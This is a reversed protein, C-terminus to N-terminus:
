FRPFIQQALEHGKTHVLNKHVINSTQQVKEVYNLM